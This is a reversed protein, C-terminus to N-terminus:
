RHLLVFGFAQSTLNAPHVAESQGPVLFRSGAPEPLAVPGGGIRPCHRLSAAAERSALSSLVVHADPSFGSGYFGDLCM